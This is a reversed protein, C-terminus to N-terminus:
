SSLGLADGSFGLHGQSFGLGGRGDGVLGALLGDQVRAQPDDGAIHGVGAGRGHGDKDPGARPILGVGLGADGVEDLMDTELAGLFPGEGLLDGLGHLSYAAHEVAGGVLLDSDVPGLDGKGVEGLGEVEEDVHEAVGAEVGLVDFFLAADDEFLEVHDLVSGVLPDFDEKVLEDPGVMGEAAVDAAGTVRNVGDGPVLQEVIEFRM